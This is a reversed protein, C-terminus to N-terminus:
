TCVVHKKQGQGYGTSPGGASSFFDVAKEQEARNKLTEASRSAVM